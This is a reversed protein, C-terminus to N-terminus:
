LLDPVPPPHMSTSIVLHRTRRAWATTLVLAVLVLGTSLGIWLGVVGWGAAFCLTYGIPLGLVWHGIVNFVM